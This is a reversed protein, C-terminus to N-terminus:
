RYTVLGWNEMAGAKFDPISIQDLKNIQDKYKINTWEDLENLLLKGFEYAYKTSNIAHPKTWVNFSSDNKEYKEYDAIVFAVLYTSM